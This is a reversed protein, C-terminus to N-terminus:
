KERIHCFRCCLLGLQVRGLFGVVPDKSLSLVSQCLVVVIVIIRRCWRRRCWVSFASDGVTASPASAAVVFPISEAVMVVPILEAVMVFPISEALV